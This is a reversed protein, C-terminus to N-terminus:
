HVALNTIHLEPLGAIVSPTETIITPVKELQDLQHHFDIEAIDIATKIKYDIFREELWFLFTFIFFNLVLNSTKCIDYIDKFHNLKLGASKVELKAGHTDSVM